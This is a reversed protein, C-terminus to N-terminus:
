ALRVPGATSAGFMYNDQQLNSYGCQVILIRMELLLYRNQMIYLWALRVSGTTSATFMYDDPLRKQLYPGVRHLVCQVSICLCQVIPSC